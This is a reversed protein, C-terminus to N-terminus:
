PMEQVQDESPAGDAHASESRLRSQHPGTYNPDAQDPVAHIGRLRRHARRSSPGNGSQGHASGHSVTLDTTSFHFGHRLKSRYPLQARTRHPNNDTSPSLFFASSTPLLLTRPSSLPLFFFHFRTHPVPSPFFCSSPHLTFPSHM